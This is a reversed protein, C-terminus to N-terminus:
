ARPERALGRQKSVAGKPPLDGGQVSLQPGKSGAAMHMHQPQRQAPTDQGHQVGPATTFGTRWSTRPMEQLLPPLLLPASAASAALGGVALLCLVNCKCVRQFRDAQMHRLLWLQCVALQQGPRIPPQQQQQEPVLLVAVGAVVCVAPLRRVCSGAVCSCGCWLVTSCCSPRIHAGWM